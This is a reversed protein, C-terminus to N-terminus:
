LNGWQDVMARAIGPYSRSREKGRDWKPPLKNWGGDTQNSWRKQGAYKGAAVIRPPFYVTKVLKPLDRLWLCTQKSADEGFNYPQIIQTWKPIYQRGIWHMVPNEVAVRKAPCNRIMNFFVAAEYTEHQLNNQLIYWLGSNSLRTCPPHGIVLDWHTEYLTDKLHMDNDMILHNGPLESEILDCSWADHGAAAFASRIVGSFECAIM